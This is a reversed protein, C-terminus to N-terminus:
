MKDWVDDLTKKTSSINTDKKAAEVKEAGDKIVTEIKQTQSEIAAEQESIDPHEYAEESVEELDKKSPINVKGEPGKSFLMKLFLAAVAIIVTWVAIFMPKVQFKM